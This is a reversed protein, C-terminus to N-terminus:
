DAEGKFCTEWMPSGTELYTKLNSLIFPWAGQWCARTKMDKGFRDHVVVLQTYKGNRRLEYTMRSVSGPTFTHTHSFKKGKSVLLAKGPFGVFDWRGGRKLELREPVTFWRKLDRGRTVVNWVKAPPAKLWITHRLAPSQVKGM